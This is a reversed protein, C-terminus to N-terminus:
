REISYLLDGGSEVGSETQLKFGRGIDYLLRFVHGPQFLGVGYSVFLRPSLYKGITLRAQDATEGPRAGISIEDLSLGGRMKQALFDGGTLGLSLAANTLAARDGDAGGEELARGLVLWSLQREQPMAPTSYLSFEPADLRGRVYVGVTIDERPQRKARIEVAPDTISGGNYLLRGTEIELDQGYAKYRGGELRVEGRARTPRGPEDLANVSGSLRTKLGFGDFNVAEGFSVKIDSNLALARQTVRQADADVIVQDSSPGVGAAFSKPRIEARPVKLEGAVRLQSAAYRIQLDPSIWVQAEPLNAAQFNEGVLKLELAGAEALQAEGQLSLTGEGSRAAAQLQVRTGGSGSVQAEVAQLTLGPAALQLREAELRARGDLRPQELTGGLRLDGTIRGQVSEVAPLLGPLWALEPMEIQARGQLPRRTLRRGPALQAGLAVGGESFPLSLRAELGQAAETINLSGPRFALLTREGARWYGESTEFDADLTQLEGGQLSLSATGSVRGEVAWGPPWLGRFYGFELDRLRMALTSRGSGQRASFCARAEGSLWCAPELAQAAASLNLAAASELSWAAADRPAIRGESLAGRWSQRDKGLAGQLMLELEGRADRVDVTLAHQQPTGALELRLQDLIEGAELDQAELTIQTSGQWGADAKLTIDGVAAQQYRLETAAAEASIRLSEGLGRLQAQAQARGSLGPWVQALNPSSFDLAVDPVPWVTGRAQLASDGNSLRARSLSLQEGRRRGMVDLNLVHQLLRSRELKLSFDLDRLAEGAGRVAFRGNMEGPLDARLQAPNIQALTGEADFELTPSWRLVGRSTIEGDLLQLALERVNLSQADGQVALKLQAELGAASLPTEMQMRYNQVRGSLQARGSGAQVQPEGSLPWQLQTWDLKLASDGFYSLEGSVRADFPQRLALGALQLGEAQLQLQTSAEVAGVPGWSFAIRRADVDPGLWDGDLAIDTFELPSEGAGSLTFRQVALSNVVLGFPLQTFPKRPEDRPPPRYNPNLALHLAGADLALVEIRNRLLSLPAWNITVRDLTLTLSDLELRFDTLSLPGLLDGDVSGVSYLGTARGAERVALEAGSRTGLLFALVVLLLGPLTLLARLLASM